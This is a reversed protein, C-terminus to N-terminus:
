THVPTHILMCTHPPALTHVAVHTYPAATGACLHIHTVTHIQTGGHELTPTCTHMCTHVPTCTNRHVVTHVPVCRHPNGPTCSCTHTYIHLHAHTCPQICAHICERKCICTHMHPSLAVAVGGSNRGNMRTRGERERWDKQRRRLALYFSPQSSVRVLAGWDEDFCFAWLNGRPYFLTVERALARGV